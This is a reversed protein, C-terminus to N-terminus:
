LVYPGGAFWSDNGAVKWELSSLDLEIRLVVVPESEIM